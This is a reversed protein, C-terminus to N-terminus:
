RNRVGALPGSDSPLDSGARPTSADALFAEVRRVANERLDAWFLAYDYVHFDGGRALRDYGPAEPREIRLWGEACRAGVLGVDLPPLAGDDMRGAPLSGRNRAAPVRDPGRRFSLPNVCLGGGDSAARGVIRPEGDEALTRWGVLCGTDLPGECPPIPLVGRAFADEPIWGGIAYAVVLSRRLPAGAAGAFHDELLHLLHATGQSHAALVLPRGEGRVAQFRLFAREVDGYALALGSEADDRFYGGLAMQRYRPAYIRAAANFASAQTTMVREDTIRNTAPDDVPANFHDDDYYTTPHVFFADARAEDQRDGLRAGPPVRDAPDVRDPLAAWASPDAYDPAPPPTHSAFPGPDLWWRLLRGCGGAALAIGM